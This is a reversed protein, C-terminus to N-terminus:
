AVCSQSAQHVKLRTSTHVPLHDSWRVFIQHLVRHVTATAARVLSTPPLDNALRDFLDGPGERLVFLQKDPIRYGTQLRADM